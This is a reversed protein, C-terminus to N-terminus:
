KTEKGIQRTNLSIGVHPYPPCSAAADKLGRKYAEVVTDNHEKAVSEGKTDGEHSKWLLGILKGSYKLDDSKM